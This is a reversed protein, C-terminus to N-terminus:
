SDDDQSAERKQGGQKSSFFCIASPDQLYSLASLKEKTYNEGRRKKELFTKKEKKQETM